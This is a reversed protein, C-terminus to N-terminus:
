YSHGSRSNNLFGIWLQKPTKNRRDFSHNNWAELFTILCHNIYPQYVLQLCFLDISSTPDLVGSDELYHYFISTCGIFLDRQFREIRQNHVSRGVIITSRGVGHLPHSLMYRSIDVYECGRDCCVRSPLGFSNVAELCHWCLQLLIILRVIAISQWDHSDM